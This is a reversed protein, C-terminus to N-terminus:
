TKININMIKKILNKTNQVILNFLLIKSDLLITRLITESNAYLLNVIIKGDDPM